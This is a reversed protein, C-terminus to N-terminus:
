YSKTSRQLQLIWLLNFKEGLKCGSFKLKKVMMELFRM